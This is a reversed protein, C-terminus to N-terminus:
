PNRPANRGRFQFSSRGMKIEDGDRLARPRLIKKSNLYVGSGGLLDYLVYKGDVKKIRAHMKAAGSDEVRISAWRGSGIGTEDLFLDYEREIGERRRILSGSEYRPADRLAEQLTRYASERLYQMAPHPLEDSPVARVVEIREVEGEPMRVTGQSVRPQIQEDKVILPEEAEQLGRKAAAELANMADVPAAEAAPSDTRRAQAELAAMERRLARQENQKRAFVVLAVILSGILLLIAVGVIIWFLWSAGDILPPRAPEPAPPSAFYTSSDEDKGKGLDIKLLVERKGHETGPATYSLRYTEEPLIRMAGALNKMADASVNTILEGGTRLALRQFRVHNATRGYLVIYVPVRLRTGLQALQSCDEESLYSNEDRGDTFLLVAARAIRASDADTNRNRLIGERAASIGMHLADFVRTTKGDRQIQGLAESLDAPAAFPQVLRPGGKIEYLAVRDQLQLEGLISIAATRAKVFHTSPISETADFVTVLVLRDATKRSGEVRLEVPKGSDSATFKVSEESAAREGRGPKGVEALLRVEPFRSADVEVLRLMPGAHATVSFFILGLALKQRVM